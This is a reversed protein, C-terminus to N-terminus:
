SCFIGSKMHWRPPTALLATAPRPLAPNSRPYTSGVLFLCPESQQMGLCKLYFKGKGADMSYKHTYESLEEEEELYVLM